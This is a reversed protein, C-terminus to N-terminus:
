LREDLQVLLSGFEHIYDITTVAVSLGGAVVAQEYVERHPSPVVVALVRPQSNTVLESLADPDPAPLVHYGSDALLQACEDDLVLLSHNGRRDLGALFGHLAALFEAPPDLFHLGAGPERGRANATEDDLVHAVRATVRFTGLSALTLELAVPDQVGLGQAGIVFLGGGGLNEAYAEVFERSGAQHRVSLFVRHRRDARPEQFPKAPATPSPPAPPDRGPDDTMHM